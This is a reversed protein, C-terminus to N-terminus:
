RTRRRGAEPVELSSASLVLAPSNNDAVTVPLDKSVGDYGGGAAGHTLTATDTEGDDDGRASVTVTQADNWTSATFTLTEQDLSLDTGTTGGLTVTVTYAKEGAEPVELSSASLVLARRLGSYNVRTARNTVSGVFLLNADTNLGAKKITSGNATLANTAVSIGDRDYDEAVLTYTFM